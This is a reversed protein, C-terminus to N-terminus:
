GASAPGYRAALDRRVEDALDPNSAADVTRVFEDLVAPWAYRRRVDPAAVRVREYHHEWNEYVDLLSTVLHDEDIAFYTCNANGAALGSVPGATRLEIANTEDLYDAMGTCATAIVPTECAISQLPVLGFGEGKPQSASTQADPGAGNDAVEIVIRDNERRASVDVRGQGRVSAVGHKVANEVLTQVVMVPTQVNGIADDLDISVHLREGFRAREVELYSSVFEFEDELRAWEKESRRLTYRFVEALQEVTNDARFPDKHILGAIANLANFLFHPNIQARLAKLESLSAQHLLEKARQDQEQKKRQLRVNELMYSFVETLSELLARDESMYPVQNERRGMMLVGIRETGSVIPIDVVCNFDLPPAESLSLEIRTPARFIRRLGAEAQEILDREGTASQMGGLFEKVADITTFRRGIWRNDLMAYLKRYVSPLIIAMPLMSIALVWPGIGGGHFASLRPYVFTFYAVLLGYTLMFALGRKVALDVFGFRDEHYLSTVIFILPMSTGFLRLYRGLDEGGGKAVFIMVVFVLMVGFLLGMSRRSSREEASEKKRRKAALTM